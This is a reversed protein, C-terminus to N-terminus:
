DFYVSLYFQGRKKAIETSPVIVYTKGARLHCRGSNERERKVPTMMVLRNKDFAKLYSDQDPIEFVTANAYHLTEVFPYDYYQGTKPLRGGTQSLSFM